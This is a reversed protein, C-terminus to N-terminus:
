SELGDCTEEEAPRLAAALEELERSVEPTDPVAAVAPVGVRVGRAPERVPLPGTSATRGRRRSKTSSRGTTFLPPQRQSVDRAEEARRRVSQPM